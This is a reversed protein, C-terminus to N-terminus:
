ICIESPQIIKGRVYAKGYPIFNITFISRLTLWAPYLQYLLFHRSDPCLTEYYLDVIIKDQTNIVSDVTDITLNPYKQELQNDSNNAPTGMFLSSLYFAITSIIIMTDSM